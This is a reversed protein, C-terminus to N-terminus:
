VEYGGTVAYFQLGESPKLQGCVSCTTGLFTHEAPIEKSETNGCSCTREETGNETCTAKKTTQWDGFSHLTKSISEVEKEGCSCVREERGETTCTAEKTTKWEGYSHTHTSNKDNTDDSDGKDCSTIVCVLSLILLAVCLFKKAM